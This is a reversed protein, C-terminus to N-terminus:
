LYDSIIELHHMISLKKPIGLGPYHQSQHYQIFGQFGLTNQNILSNQNAYNIFTNLAELFKSGPDQPSNSNSTSICHKVYMNKDFFSTHIAVVYAPGGNESYEERLLLFDGFGIQNPLEQNNQYTLHADSYFVPATPYDANRIQAPFSDRLIVAKPAASIFNPSYSSPERFLNVVAGKIYTNINPAQSVDEQIYLAYKLGADICDKILPLATHLNNNRIRICPLYDLQTSILTNFLQAAPYNVYDGFEPNIVIYPIMSNDNLKSVASALAAISYNVPEIVPFIKDTKLKTVTEKLAQLENQKGRLYPFYM